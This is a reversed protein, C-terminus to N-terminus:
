ETAGTKREPAIREVEKYLVSRIYSGTCYGMGEAIEKLEEWFVRPVKLGIYKDNLLEM